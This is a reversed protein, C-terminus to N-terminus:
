NSIQEFLWQPCEAEIYDPYPQENSSELWTKEEATLPSMGYQSGDFIDKLQNKHYWLLIKRPDDSKADFELKLRNRIINWVLDCIFRRDKSGIYKRSRVYDNIISDAPKQNKFVETLIELAAQYRAGTQM